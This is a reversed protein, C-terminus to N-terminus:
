FKQGFLKIVENMTKADVNQQLWKRFQLQGQAKMMAELESSVRERMSVRCPDRSARILTLRKRELEGLEKEGDDPEKGSIERRAVATAASLVSKVTNNLFSTDKVRLFSLFALANLKCLDFKSRPQITQFFAQFWSKALPELVKLPENKSIRELLEWMLDQASCFLHALLHFHNELVIQPLGQRTPIMSSSQKKEESKPMVDSIVGTVYLHFSNMFDKPSMVLAVDLLFSDIALILRIKRHFSQTNSLRSFAKSLAEAVPGQVFNRPRTILAYSKVLGLCGEVTTSQPDEFADVLAKHWYAQFLSYWKESLESANAIAVRWLEIAAEHLHEQDPTLCNSILDLLFSHFRHSESGAAKVLSKLTYLIDTRVVNQEATQKWLDQVSSLVGPVAPLIHAGMERFVYDAMALTQKKTHAAKSDYATKFTFKLIQDSSRAFDRIRIDPTPATSILDRLSALATLRVLIDESALIRLICSYINSKLDPKLEHVQPAFEGLLWVIRRQIIRTTIPAKASLNTSLEHSLINNYWTAISFGSNKLGDHIECSAQGLAYYLADKRLVERLLDPNVQVDLPLPRQKITHELMQVIFGGVAERHHKILDWFLGEAAPRLREYKHLRHGKHFFQEPDTEWDDIDSRTMPMLKLVLNEILDKFKGNLAWYTATSIKSDFNIKSKDAHYPIRPPMPKPKIYPNKAVESLFRICNVSFEEFVAEDDFKSNKLVGLVFPLFPRTFPVIALNHKEILECMIKILALSIETIKSFASPFNRLKSRAGPFVELMHLLKPFVEAQANSFAYPQVTGSVMLENVCRTLVLTMDAVRAFSKPEVGSKKWEQLKVVLGESYQSWMKDLDKLMAQCANARLIRHELVRLSGLHDLVVLLLSLGRFATGERQIMKGIAKFLDKWNPWEVRAIVGVVDRLQAEVQKPIRPAESLFILLGMKAREKEASSQPKHNPGRASIFLSKVRNKLMIAAALRVSEPVKESSCSEILRSLFGPVSGMERLAEEARTRAVNDDLLTQSLLKDVAELHAM